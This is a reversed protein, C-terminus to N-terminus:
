RVFIRGRLLHVVKECFPFKDIFLTGILFSSEVPFLFNFTGDNPECDHKLSSMIYATKPSRSNRLLHQAREGVWESPSGMSVRYRGSPTNHKVLLGPFLILRIV